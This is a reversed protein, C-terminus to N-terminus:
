WKKQTSNARFTRQLQPPVGHEKNALFKRLQERTQFFSRTRRLSFPMKQSHPRIKKKDVQNWVERHRILVIIMGMKCLFNSLCLSNCSKALTVGILFISIWFDSKKAKATVWPGTDLNPIKISSFLSLKHPLLSISNTGSFRSNPPSPCYPPYGRLQLDPFFTLMLPRTPGRVVLLCTWYSHPCSLIPCQPWRLM